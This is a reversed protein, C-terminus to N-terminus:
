IKEPRTRTGGREFTDGNGKAGMGEIVRDEIHAEDTTDDWRLRYSRVLMSSTTTTDGVFQRVKQAPFIFHLAVYTTGSIVFGAVFSM